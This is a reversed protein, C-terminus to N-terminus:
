AVHGFTVHTVRALGKRPNSHALTPSVRACQGSPRAPAARLAPPAALAPGRASRSRKPSRWAENAPKTREVHAVVAEADERV